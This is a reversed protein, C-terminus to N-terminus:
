ADYKLSCNNEILRKITINLADMEDMKHLAWARKQGHWGMLAGQHCSKCLAICVYQRHQKVHHADSPAPADCVSCPLSKVNQLHEREKITPKNNM